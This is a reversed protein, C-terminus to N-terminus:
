LCWIPKPLGAYRCAQRAPGEPFLEYLYRSNAKEKGCVLEIQKVLRRVGPAVQNRSYYDRVFHIVIWHDKTLCCSDKRAMFEAVEMNWANVDLLYGENTTELTKGDIVCIMITSVADALFHYRYELDFFFNVM